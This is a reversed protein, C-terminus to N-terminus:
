RSKVRVFINIFCNSHVTKTKQQARSPLTQYRPPCTGLVCEAGNLGLAPTRAPLMKPAVEQSGSTGCGRLVLKALRCTIACVPPPPPSRTSHLFGARKWWRCGIKLTYSQCPCGCLMTATYWQWKCILLTM